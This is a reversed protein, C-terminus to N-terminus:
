TYDRVILAEGNQTCIYEGEETARLEPIIMELQDYLDSLLTTVTGINVVQKLEEGSPDPTTPIGSFHPSEINAKLEDQRRRTEIENALDDTIANDAAQRAREEAEINGQLTADANRRSTAEAEIDEELDNDANWRSTAEAEINGQLTADANRRSTAEATDAAQRATVEATIANVSAIGLQDPSLNGALEVSNIKPKNFLITYDTIWSLSNWYSVGDGVKFCNKYQGSSIIGIQGDALIPNNQSFWAYTNRKQRM